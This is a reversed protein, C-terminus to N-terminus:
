NINFPVNICHNNVKCGWIKRVLTIHMETFLETRTNMCVKYRTIQTVTIIVLIREVHFKLFPVRLRNQSGTKLTM